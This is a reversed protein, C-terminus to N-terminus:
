KADLEIVLLFLSYLKQVQKGKEQKEQEEQEKGTMDFIDVNFLDRPFNQSIFM